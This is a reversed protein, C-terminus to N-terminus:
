YFLLVLSKLLAEENTSLFGIVNFLNVSHMKDFYIILWLWCFGASPDTGISSLVDGLPLRARIIYKRPKQDVHCFEM